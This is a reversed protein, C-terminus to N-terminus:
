PRNRQDACFRVTGGNTHLCGFWDPLPYSRLTPRTKEESPHCSRWRPHLRDNPNPEESSVERFIIARPSESESSSHYCVELDSVELSRRPVPGPESCQMGCRAQVRGIM